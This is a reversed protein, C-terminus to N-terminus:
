RSENIDVKRLDNNANIVPFYMMEVKAPNLSYTGVYRPLLSVTFRYTGEPLNECFVVMKEKFYERHVERNYYNYNPKSAYSCGAPIPIEILVHEANKQKVNVETVLTAIEGMRLTDGNEIYTSVEFADGINAETVYKMTYSSYILPMGSKKEINLHEGPTLTTNYPFQSLDKNDKGSLQVAAPNDKSFAEKLLDPFVTGVVTSAQYTNWYYQKTGLIYSQMGEMYHMLTSDCRAIRYAILTTQLQDSYWYREIGDDCYVNGLVDQKLYKVISDSSYDINQLQRLEWLLLKEKLYSQYRPRKDALATSDAKADLVAIQKEFMEIVPKYNQEAGWESVASLLEIDRMYFGRYSELDVYDEALKDMKLNVRYGADEAMKLARM